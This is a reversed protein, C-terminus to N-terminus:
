SACICKSSIQENLNFRDCIHRLWELPGGVHYDIILWLVNLNAWLFALSILDNSM